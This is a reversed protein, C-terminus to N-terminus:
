PVEDLIKSTDVQAHQKILAKTAASMSRSLIFQRVKSQVFQEVVTKIAPGGLAVMLSDIFVGSAARMAVNLTDRKLAGQIDILDADGAGAFEVDAWAEQVLLTHPSAAASFNIPLRALVQETFSTDGSMDFDNAGYFPFYGIPANSTRFAIGLSFLKNPSTRDTFTPHAKGKIVKFLILTNDASYRKLTV